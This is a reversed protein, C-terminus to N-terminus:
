LHNYGTKIECAKVHQPKVTAVLAAKNNLMHLKFFVHPACLTLALSGCAGYSLCWASCRCLGLSVFSCHLLFLQWCEGSLRRESRCCGIGGGNSFWIFFFFQRTPGSKSCSKSQETSASICKTRWSSYSQFRRWGEDSTSDTFKRERARIFTPPFFSIMMPKACSGQTGCVFCFYFAGSATHLFSKIAGRLTTRWRM